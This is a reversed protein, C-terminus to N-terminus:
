TSHFLTLKNQLYIMKNVIPLSDSIDGKRKCDREVIILKKVCFRFIPDNYCLLYVFIGHLDAIHRVKRNWLECASCVMAIYRYIVFPTGQRIVMMPKNFILIYIILWEMVNYIWYFCVLKWTKTIDHATQSIPYSSINKSKRFPV